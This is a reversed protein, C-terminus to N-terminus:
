RPLTDFSNAPHEDAPVHRQLIVPGIGSHTLSRNCLGQRARQRKSHCGRFPGPQIVWFGLGQIPLQVGTGAVQHYEVPGPAYNLCAIKFGALVTGTGSCCSLCRKDELSGPLKAFVAGAFKFWGIVAISGFVM